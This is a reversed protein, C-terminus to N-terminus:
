DPRKHLDRIHFSSVRWGQPTRDVEVDVSRHIGDAGTAIEVDYRLQARSAGVKRVSKRTFYTPPHAEQAGYGGERVSRVLEQERKLVRRARGTSWKLAGQQDARVFYDDVFRDAVDEASQPDGCAAFLLLLTRV